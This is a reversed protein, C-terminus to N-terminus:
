FRSKGRGKFDHSNAAVLMGAVKVEHGETAMSPLRRECNSGSVANELLFQLLDSLPVSEDDGSIDDHGLVHMQQYALRAGIRKRGNQLYQLLLNRPYELSARFLDCLM